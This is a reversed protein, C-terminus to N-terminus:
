GEQYLFFEITHDPATKDEGIREIRFFGWSQNSWELKEPVLIIVHIHESKMVCEVRMARSITAQVSKLVKNNFDTPLSLFGLIVPFWKRVVPDSALGVTLELEGLIQWDQNSDPRITRNVNQM